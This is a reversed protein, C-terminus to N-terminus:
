HTKNLVYHHAALHRARPACRAACRSRMKDLFSAMHHADKQIQFLWSRPGRRTRKIMGLSEIERLAMSVKRRKMGTVQIIREISPWCEGKSNAHRLLAMLVALRYPGLRSGLSDLLANPVRFYGDHGPVARRTESLTAGCIGAQVALLVPPDAPNATPVTMTM